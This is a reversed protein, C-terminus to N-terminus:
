ELIFYGDFRHTDFYYVYPFLVYRPVIYYCYYTDHVHVQFIYFYMYKFFTSTCTNVTSMQNYVPEVVMAYRNHKLQTKMKWDAKYMQSTEERRIKFILLGYSCTTQCLPGTNLPFAYIQMSCYRKYALINVMFICHHYTLLTCSWRRCDVIRVVVASILTCPSFRLRNINSTMLLLNM